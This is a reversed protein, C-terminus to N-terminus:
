RGVVMEPRSNLYASKMGMTDSTVLRGDDGFLGYTVICGGTHELAEAGFLSRLFNKTIRFAGGASVVQAFLYFTCGKASSAITRVFAGRQLLQLQTLGTHEDSKTLKNSLDDFSAEAAQFADRAAALTGNAPGFNPDTPQLQGIRALLASIDQQAQKRQAVATDLARVFERLSENSSAPPAFLTPYHFEVGEEDEWQHALALVFAQEAIVVQRGFYRTDTKLAALLAVAADAVVPAAALSPFVSFTRAAAVAPAPAASAPAALALGGRATAAAGTYADALNRLQIEVTDLIDIALRLAQDLYFLHIVAPPTAAPDRKPLRPQLRAKIRGAVLRMVAHAALEVEFTVKDDISTDGPDFTLSRISGSGAGDRAQQQPIPPIPPTTAVTVTRM